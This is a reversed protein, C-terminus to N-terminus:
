RGVLPLTIRNQPCSDLAYPVVALSYGEASQEWRVTVGAPWVPVQLYAPGIYGVPAADHKAWHVGRWQPVWVGPRDELEAQWGIQDPPTHEVVRVRTCHQGPRAAWETADFGPPTVNVILALLLAIM